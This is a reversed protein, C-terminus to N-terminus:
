MASPLETGLGTNASTGTNISQIDFLIEANNENTYSFVNAYSALLSYRNGAIIEDLLTGALAFENSGLGPGEIGYTPGSKTLYVLALMAKAADLTVKGKNSVPYTPPLKSIASKLDAIILKYVDAVPSRPIGLAEDPSAVHDFIPVKGVFRVLDFYFFARFFKAEGEMRDRTIDDPVLAPDLKDLVTNAKLIGTFNGNWLALIYPNTALTKAFNNIPVWDRVGSPGSSYINDSRVDSLDFQAIGYDYTHLNQYIGNVAQEFDSTNRYFNISGPTSIPAQELEKTCATFGGIIFIYLIFKAKM